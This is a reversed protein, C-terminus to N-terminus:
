ELKLGVYRRLGSHNRVLGMALWSNPSTRLSIRLLPSFVTQSSARQGLIWSHQPTCRVAVNMIRPLTQVRRQRNQATSVPKGVSSSRALVGRWQRAM